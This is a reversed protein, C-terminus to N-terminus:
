SKLSLLVYDSSFHAFFNPLLREFPKEGFMIRSEFEKVKLLHFRPKKTAKANLKKKREPFRGM